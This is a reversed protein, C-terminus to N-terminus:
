TLANRIEQLSASLKKKGGQFKHVRKRGGLTDSTERARAARRGNRRERGQYARGNGGQSMGGNGRANCGRGDDRMLRSGM